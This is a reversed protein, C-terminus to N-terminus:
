REGAPTRTIAVLTTEGPSLTHRMVVVSQVGSAFFEREDLTIPTATTNTLEYREGILSPTEIRARLVFRAEAWLAIDRREAILLAALDPAGEPNLLALSMAKLSRLYSDSRGRSADESKPQGGHITLVLTDGIVDAPQLLLGVTGHDTKVDVKIPTAPAAPSTGVLARTVPQIYVEGEADDKLVLVRGTPNREPDHLDGIVELVRGQAVRLRTQDRASVRVITTDGERIRIDQACQASGTFLAALGLFLHTARRLCTTMALGVSPRSPATPHIM